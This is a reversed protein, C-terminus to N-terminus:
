AARVFDVFKRVEARLTDSQVALESASSLVQAAASSSTEAAQTVGTINITVENTGLAAQQINRAVEATTAGQEEVAAVIAAAIGNMDGITRGISSIATVAETTSGQMGAIQASIEATAKATQEALSKVEQAVVAFGRGAEGARASEITANLALLNTQAAIDGILGVIAGIEDADTRLSGMRSNTQDAEGVARHAVSTSHSVQQGIEGASAALEEVAAAVTQVNAAAQEAAAAVAAAQATTEEATATLSEAAAQLEAAASSVRDVVVGVAAEFREALRNMDAKRQAAAAGEAEARERRMRETEALNDRFVALAGAMDGIENRRGVYPVERALDGGAVAAMAETLTTIPATVGRLVYGLTVLSLLAVVVIAGITTAEVSAATARSAEAAAEAGEKNFRVLDDLEKSMGDYAVRLDGQFMSAAQEKMNARSLALLQDHKSVYNNWEDAFNEFAIKEPESSILPRYEALSVQLSQLVTKMREETGAMQAADSVMIHASETARVRALLMQMTRALDLSPLWNQTIDDTEAALDRSGNWATWGLGGVAVLLLVLISILTRKITLRM